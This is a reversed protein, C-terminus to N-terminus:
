DKKINKQERQTTTHTYQDRRVTINVKDANVYTSAKQAIAVNKLQSKLIGCVVFAAILPIIIFKVIIGLIGSGTDSSDSAFVLVYNALTMTTLLVVFLLYKYFRKSFNKM